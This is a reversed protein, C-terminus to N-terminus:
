DKLIGNLGGLARDVMDKNNKTYIDLTVQSKTHGLQNQVFKISAGNDLAIDAYSGRFDHIRVRDSIGVYALLPQWVRRRINNDSLYGNVQSPFLIQTDNSKNLIHEELVEIVDDTIYVYRELVGVLRARNKTGDKFKSKTIQKNVKICKEKFNIDNVELALAEGFRLGTGMLTYFLAYYKPYLEKCCKLVEKEQALTLHKNEKPTVIINEVALFKNEKILKHKMAFNGVAKAIKLCLQAVFPTNNQTMDDFFKQLDITSVKNYKLPYLKSLLKNIYLKYNDQTTHSYKPLQLEIYPKFIQEITIDTINSDINEYESLHAQAESKTKYYGATHQQGFIDRYTIVYITKKTGKKNIKTKKSIGAM